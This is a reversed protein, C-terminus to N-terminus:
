ALACVPLIARVGIAFLTPADLLAALFEGGLAKNEECFGLGYPGAGAVHEQLKYLDHTVGSVRLRDQNEPSKGLM